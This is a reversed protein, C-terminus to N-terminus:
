GEALARKLLSKLRMAGFNCDTQVGVCVFSVVQTEREQRSSVRQQSEDSWEACLPFM